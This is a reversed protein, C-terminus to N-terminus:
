ISILVISGITIAVVLSVITQVNSLWATVIIHTIPIIMISTILTTDWTTTAASTNIIVVLVVVIHDVMQVTLLVLHSHTIMAESTVCEINTVILQLLLTAFEVILWHSSSLLSQISIDSVINRCCLAAIIHILLSATKYLRPSNRPLCVRVNSDLNMFILSDDMM